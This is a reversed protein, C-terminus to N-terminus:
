IVMRYVIENNKRYIKVMDNVVYGYYKAIPDGSLLKPFKDIGGYKKIIKNKEDELLKEHRPVLSHRTINYQLEDVSFIEINEGLLGLISKAPTTIINEYVIIIKYFYNEDTFLTMSRIHEINIKNFCMYLVAIRNAESIFIECNIFENCIQVILMEELEFDRSRLMDKVTEKSKDM